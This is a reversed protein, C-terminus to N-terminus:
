VTTHTNFLLILALSHSTGCVFFPPPITFVFDGRSKGLSLVCPLRCESHFLVADLSSTSHRLHLRDNNSACHGTTNSTLLLLQWAVYLAVAACHLGVVNRSMIKMSATAEFLSFAHNM